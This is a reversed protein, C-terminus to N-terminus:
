KIKSTFLNRFNVKFELLVRFMGFCLYISNLLYVIVIIFNKFIQKEEEGIM